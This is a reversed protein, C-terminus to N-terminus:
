VSCYEPIVAVLSRRKIDSLAEQFRRASEETEPSPARALAAPDMADDCSYYSDEEADSDPIATIELAGM